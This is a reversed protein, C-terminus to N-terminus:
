LLSCKHFYIVNSVDYNLYAVELFEQEITHTVKGAWIFIQASIKIGQSEM